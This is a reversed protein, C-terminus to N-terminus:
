VLAMITLGQAGRVAWPYWIEFPLPVEVQKRAVKISESASYAADGWEAPQLLFGPPVTGQAAAGALAEKFVTEVDASTFPFGTNPVSVAEHHVKQSLDPTISDQIDEAAGYQQATSPHIELPQEYLGHQIQGLLYM